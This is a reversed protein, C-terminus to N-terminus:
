PRPGSKKIITINSIFTEPSDDAVILIGTLVEPLLSTTSYGPLAVQPIIARCPFELDSRKVFVRQKEPSDSCAIAAAVIVILILVWM